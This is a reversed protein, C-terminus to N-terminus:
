KKISGIVNYMDIHTTKKWNGRSYIEREADTERDTQGDCEYMTSLRCLIDGNKHMRCCMCSRIEFIEEMVNMRFAYDRKYM